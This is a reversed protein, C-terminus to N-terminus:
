ASIVMWGRRYIIPTRFKKPNNSKYVHVYIKYSELFYEVTRHKFFFLYRKKLVSM